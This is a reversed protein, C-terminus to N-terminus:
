DGIHEDFGPLAALLPDPSIWRRLTPDYTRAGFSYTGIAADAEAGAFGHRPSSLTSYGGLKKGWADYEAERTIATDSDFATTALVSGRADNVLYASESVVREGTDLSRADEVSVSGSVPVRLVFVGDDPRIEALGAFDIRRSTTGDALSSARAVVRGDLGCTYASSAEGLVTDSSAISRLCGTPDFGFTRTRSGDARTEADTALYGDPDYALARQKQASADDVASVAQPTVTSGYTYTEAGASLLNGSPSFSYAEYQSGTPTSADSSALRDLLDYTHIKQTYIGAFGLKSRNEELLNGNPDYVYAVGALVDNAANKHTIADLRESLANYTWDGSTNNGYRAHTIRDDADHAVDATLISWTRVGDVQGFSEVQTARGKADRTYRLSVPAPGVVM